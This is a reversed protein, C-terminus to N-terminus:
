ELLMDRIELLHSLDFEDGLIEKWSYRDEGLMRRRRYLESGELLNKGKLM